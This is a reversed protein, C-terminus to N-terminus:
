DELEEALAKNGVTVLDFEPPKLDATGAGELDGAAAGLLEAVDATGVM